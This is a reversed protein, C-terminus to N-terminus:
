KQWSIAAADLFFVAVVFPFAVFFFDLYYCYSILSIEKKKKNRFNNM